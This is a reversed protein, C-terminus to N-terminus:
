GGSPPASPAPLDSTRMELLSSRPVAVSGPAGETM